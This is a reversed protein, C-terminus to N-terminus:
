LSPVDVLRKNTKIPSVSLTEQQKKQQHPVTTFQVSLAKKLPPPPPHLAVTGVNQMGGGLFTHNETGQHARCNYFVSIKEVSAIAAALREEHPSHLHRDPTKSIGVIRDRRRLRM